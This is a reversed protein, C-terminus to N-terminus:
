VEDPPYHERAFRIMEPSSDIGTVRGRPVSKAIEVTIKGDGCGIDLVRENGTFWLKELLDSAWGSRASSSSHYLDPDRRYM